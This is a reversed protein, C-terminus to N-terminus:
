KVWLTANGTAVVDGHDPDDTDLYGAGLPLDGAMGLGDVSDNSTCDGPANENGTWGFRTAINGLQINLGYAHCYPQLAFSPNTDTSVADPWPIVYDTMGIFMAVASSYVGNPSYTFPYGDLIGRVQTVGVTSFSSYVADVGTGLTLDTANLTMGPTTWYPAGYTLTEDGTLKMVLTWGAGYGDGHDTMDCYVSQTVGGAFITYVGDASGPSAALIAACSSQNCTGAGCATGGTCVNGCGGCNNADSTIDVECGNAAVSDCNAFGTSCTGVGCTASSCTDTSVNPLSCVRGCAGCNSPDGSTNVECGDAETGNCNGYGAKCVGVACKGAVCDDSVANAHLTCASCSGCHSPDVQENVCENTCVSLGTGCSASCSTVGAATTCVTGNPCVGATGQGGGCAANVGCHQSDTTPDVCVGNCNVFGTACTTACTGANCVQNGTCIGTTGTKPACAADVGCYKPNTNPDVCTGNCVVEGVACTVSCSGKGDCVTGPHATCNIGASDNADGQTTVCTGKAGCFANSTLPDVCIGNCEVEGTPCSVACSATGKTVTCVTGPTLTCNLGANAAACDATAGCHALSTTPDICTDGCKVQSPQCSIACAGASCVEGTPCISGASDTNDGTTTTCSGKAGCFEPNTLPDICSGNCQVENALCTTQCTGDTCVQGSPCVTGSSGADAGCGATAGCHQGSTKPDVCSQNCDVLGPQCTAACTGESCVQGSACAIGCGGCNQRDTLMDICISVGGDAGADSSTGAPACQTLGAGCSVGCTGASCVEGGPCVTGCTGCNKADTLTNVCSANCATTGAGCFSACSELDCVMGVGCANGCAGCNRGQNLDVCQGNCATGTTCVIGADGADGGDAPAADAASGDPIGGEPVTADLDGADARLQVFTSDDGGCGFLSLASIAAFAFTCAARLARPNAPLSM